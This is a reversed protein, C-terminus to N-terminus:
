IDPFLNNNNNKKLFFLGGSGDCSKAVWYPKTVLDM